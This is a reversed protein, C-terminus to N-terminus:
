GRAYVAISRWDPYLGFIRGGRVTISDMAVWRRRCWCTYVTGRVARRPLRCRHQRGALVGLDTSADRREEGGPRGGEPRGCGGRRVPRVYRVLGVQTHGLHSSLQPNRRFRGAARGLDPGAASISLQGRRGSRRCRAGTDRAATGTRSRRSSSRRPRPLSSLSGTAQSRFSKRSGTCRSSPTARDGFWRHVARGSGARSRLVATRERTGLVPRYWTPGGTEDLGDFLPVLVPAGPPEADEAYAARGAQESRVAAELLWRPIADAARPLLRLEDACEEASLTSPPTRDDAYRATPTGPAFELRLRFWVGRGPSTTACGCGTCGSARWPRRRGSGGCPAM